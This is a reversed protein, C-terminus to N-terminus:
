GMREEANVLRRVFPDMVWADKGNMRVLCIKEAWRMYRRVMEKPFEDDALQSLTANGDAALLQMMTKIEERLGFDQWTRVVWEKDQFREELQTMSSRAKSRKAARYDYLLKPWYGTTDMLKAMNTDSVTDLNQEDMWKKVMSDHWPSLSLQPVSDLLELVAEDKELSWTQGPDSVFVIHLLKQLPKQKAMLKQAAEIWKESWCSTHSVLVYVPTDTTKKAIKQLQKDFDQLTTTEEGIVVSSSVGAKPLSDKMDDLGSAATGHVISILHNRLLEAQQVTLVSRKYPIGDAEAGITPRYLAPEYVTAKTRSRTLKEEIIEESGMLSALSLSRLTFGGSSTERLIGLGVMEGLLIRFDDMNLEALGEPWWATAFERIQAVKFGENYVWRKDLAEHAISYAIVEYRDDLQLTWNIRQSIERRLDKDEYARDIHKGNLKFPPCRKPDFGARRDLVHYLLQKCYLQILSPYYNTQSLIRTVLDESEFGYGGLQMPLTVLDRATTWEEHLPGICLAAGFHALPNNENRTTRQVNHLGAFVVHFRRRTVDMLNKLLRCRHFGVRDDGAKNGGGLFDKGDLELFRDSEDLLLLINRQDDADLWQKIEELVKHNWKSKRQLIGASSLREGVVNWIYDIETLDTGQLDIWYAHNGDEPRHFQREAERLLATKGLQRGGYIFGAQRNMILQIERKRGFFMEPAVVGPQSTYPEIYTFPLACQFLVPMRDNRVGCLYFMLLEDVILATRRRERCKNALERAKAATMRGFHFAITAAQGHTEGISELIHDSTERDWFCFIRYKGNAESGFAPLPCRIADIIPNCEAEFYHVNARQKVTVSKVIFGLQELIIKAQAATQPSTTKKTKMAYWAAMMNSANQAQKSSVQNLNLSIPGLSGRNKVNEIVYNASRGNGEVSFKYLAEYKDEFFDSFYNHREEIEPLENNERFYNLYEDATPIDGKDLVARFRGFRENSVDIGAEGLTQLFHEVKEERKANLHVDIDRLRARPEVFREMEKIRGQLEELEDILNFRENESIWTFGYAQEIQKVSYDHTRQMAERHQYLREQLAQMAADIAGAEDKEEQPVNDLVRRAAGLDQFELFYEFLEQWGWESRSVIQDIHAEEVPALPEWSDPDLPADSRVLSANLAAHLQPENIHRADSNRILQHLGDLANTLITAAISARETSQAAAYAVVEECAAPLLTNLNSRLDDIQKQRYGSAGNTRRSALEYWRHYFQLAADSKNRLQVIAKSRINSGRTRGLIQSDTKDVEVVFGGQDAFREAFAFLAEEDIDVEEHLIPQLLQFVAGQPERVWYRWVDTAPQFCTTAIYAQQLWAQVEKRLRALEDEWSSASQIQSIAYSSLGMNESSFRVVKDRITELRELGYLPIQQLLMPAGTTPAFLTPALTAAALLLRMASDEEIAQQLVPFQDNLENRLARSLEGTASRLPAGILVARLLASNPRISGPGCEAEALSAMRYAAELHGEKMLSWIRDNFRAADATGAKRLPVVKEVAAMPKDPAPASKKPTVPPKPPLTESSGAATEKYAAEAEATSAVSAIDAKGQRVPQPDAVLEPEPKPEPEFEVAPESEHEPEPRDTGGEGAAVSPVAKTPYAQKKFTAKVEAAPGSAKPLLLEEGKPLRLSIDLPRQKLQEKFTRLPDRVLAPELRAEDEEDRGSRSHSERKSKPEQEQEQSPKKPKSAPVLDADPRRETSAESAPAEGVSVKAEEVTEAVPVFQIKNRFLAKEVDRNYRQVEDRLEDTLEENDLVEPITLRYVASWFSATLAAPEPEVRFADLKRKSEELLPAWWEPEPDALLRVQRLLKYAEEFKKAEELEVTLWGTLAGITGEYKDNWTPVAKAADLVAQYSEKLAPLARAAADDPLFGAELRELAAALAEKAEKAHLEVRQLLLLLNNNQKM